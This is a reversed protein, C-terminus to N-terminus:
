VTLEGDRLWDGMEDASLLRAIAGPQGVLLTKQGNGGDARQLGMVDTYLGLQSDRTAAVRLAVNDSIPLNLAGVLRLVAPENPFIGVM